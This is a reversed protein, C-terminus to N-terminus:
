RHWSPSHANSMITGEQSGDLSVYKVSRLGDRDVFSYAIGQGDPSWSLSGPDLAENWPIDGAWALQKLLVGDASMLAVSFRKNQYGNISDGLVFAIMSGDPSWAPHLYYRIGRQGLDFGQTRRTQGTGDANMTYIDFVFDYAVYDSVFTLQRGDPSWSPQGEWGPQDALVNVRGNAIDLAAIQASGDRLSSFAIASGDPSWAPEADIRGDTLRSVNTGDAGMVYIHLEGNGDGHGSAFAIRSGDPSWEPQLDEGAHMTLRKLGSGNANVVYIDTDGYIHANGGERSVVALQGQLEAPPGIATAAFTAEAPGSAARVRQVGAGQGLTWRGCTAIGNFDTVVVGGEISGGGAVVTFTVKAGAVPNGSADAVRAVLPQSLRQGVGAIQGNGSVHTVQM